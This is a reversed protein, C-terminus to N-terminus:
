SQRPSPGMFPDPGERHNQQHANMKRRSAQKSRHVAVPRRMTMALRGEDLGEGEWHAETARIVAMMM